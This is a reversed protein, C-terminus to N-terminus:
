YSSCTNKNSSISEESVEPLGRVADNDYKNWAQLVVGHYDSHIARAAELRFPRERCMTIFSGIRVKKKKDWGLRRM